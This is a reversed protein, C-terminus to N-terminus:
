GIVEVPLSFKTGIPYEKPAKDAKNRRVEM